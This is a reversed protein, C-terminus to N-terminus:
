VHRRSRTVAWLIAILLGIVVIGFFARRGGWYRARAVQGERIREAAVARGAPQQLYAANEMSNAMNLSVAVVAHSNDAAVPSATAPGAYMAGVLAITAIFFRM